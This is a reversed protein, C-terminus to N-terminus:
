LEINNDGIFSKFDDESLFRNINKESIGTNIALNEVSGSYNNETLFDKLLAQEAMDKTQCNPCVNNSTAFFAGCRKCRNLEM